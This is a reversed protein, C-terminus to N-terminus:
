SFRRYLDACRLGAYIAVIIGGIIPFNSTNESM